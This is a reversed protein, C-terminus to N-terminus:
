HAPKSTALNTCYKGPDCSAPCETPTTAITRAVCVQLSTDCHGNPCAADSHCPTATTCATCLLALLLPVRLPPSPTPKHHRHHTTTRSPKSTKPTCPM